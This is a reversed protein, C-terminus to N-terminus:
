NKHVDNIIKLIKESFAIETFYNIVYQQNVFSFKEIESSLNSSIFNIKEALTNVNKPEVLYGNVQSVIDPIGAHDTTLIINGTAMAEILSIPQGEMTYYTPFIFLNSEILANIKKQDKVVGIYEARGQLQDLRCIVEKELGDEIKGAIKAKFVVNRDKLLILADLFDLIGKEKMLNSLWLINLQTKNKEIRESFILENNAFNEVIFVNKQNLLGNFNDRLSKSLVIGARSRSVLFKFVIKKFGSLLRYQTGLYNGHIHMVIPKRLLYSFVIFPAYKLIGWFSQGPTMYIVDAKLTKFLEFYVKIFVLIKSWSFQGQVGQIDSEMSTNITDVSCNHKILYKLFTQNALSCGNIPDPLPGILLIKANNPM